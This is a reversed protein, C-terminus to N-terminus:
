AAPEEALTLTTWCRCQPHRPPYDPSRIEAPWEAEPKGNLPGCQVCVKEDRSTHWVRVMKVGAEALANQYFTTGAAYARTTETVAIMQARTEGFHPALDAKLDGITRGPTRIFEAVKRGVVKRTTDTIGRILEGAYREAWAAAEEAIVGWEVGVGVEAAYGLMADRAMAEMQPRLDAIMQGTQTDWWEPPIRTVDPPDGLMDLVEQLQRNLRAKLLKLLRAEYADKGAAFPDVEGGETRRAAKAPLSAHEFAHRIADEDLAKELLLTVTDRLTEPLIASEFVRDGPHRGARLEGLAVARWRKMEARVGEAVAKDVDPTDPVDQAPADLSADGQPAADDDPMPRGTPAFPNVPEPPLELGAADAVWHKIASADLKELLRVPIKAFLPSDPFLPELGHEQRNEEITRDASYATYERLELQRDQPVLAPAEIVLDNGYYPMLKASLEDYFYTALPQVANRALRIEWALQSDGSMGENYSPIGYIRDVEDRTLERAALIQMQEITQSVTQLSFDGQRTFLIRSGSEIQERIAEVLADFDADLTEPAFSILATPVANDDRYFARLWRVQAVDMEVPLLAASLPSLGRWYDFPNAMRWHVVNEGPLTYTQGQVTYAYDIVQEGTLVSARLTEPKPQVANAPLPWLEQPEGRGPSPTAIFAFAEGRLQLWWAAYRIFRGGSWLGNPRRLLMEAPHNSQDELEEGVVKKVEGRADRSALRDALLKIDSYVWSSTVALRYAADTDIPESDYRGAEAMAGLAASFVSARRTPAKAPEGYAYRRADAVYRLARGLLNPM